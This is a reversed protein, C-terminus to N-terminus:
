CCGARTAGQPRGDQDPAEVISPNFLATAEIAYVMTLYTETLIRRVQLHCRIMNIVGERM